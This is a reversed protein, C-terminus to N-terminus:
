LPSFFFPIQQTRVWLLNGEDCPSACRWVHSYCLLFYSGIKSVFWRLYVQNPLSLIWLLMDLRPTALKVTQNGSVSLVWPQFVLLPISCQQTPQFSREREGKTFDVPYDLIPLNSFDQFVPPVSSATYYVPPDLALFLILLQFSDLHVMKLLPIELSLLQSELLLQEFFPWRFSFFETFDFVKWEAADLNGNAIKM